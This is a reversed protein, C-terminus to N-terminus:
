QARIAAPSKFSHHIMRYPTFGLQEFDAFPWGSQDIPLQFTGGAAGLMM